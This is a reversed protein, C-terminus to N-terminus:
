KEVVVDGSVGRATRSQRQQEVEIRRLSAQVGDLREVIVGSTNEVARLRVDYDRVMAFVVGALLAIVSFITGIVWAHKKFCGNSDTM